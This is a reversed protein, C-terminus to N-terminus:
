QAPNAPLKVLEEEDNVEAQDGEGKSRKNHVPISHAHPDVHTDGERNAQDTRCSMIWGPIPRQAASRSNRNHRMKMKLLSQSVRGATVVLLELGEVAVRLSRVGEVRM